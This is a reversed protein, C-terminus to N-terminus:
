SFSGAALRWGGALAAAMSRVAHEPDAASCLEAISAACRAGAQAVADAASETIGGIAVVPIKSRQVARRLGDIGHPPPLPSGPKSQTAFIPGFGIYDAGQAADIEDDSHTSVGIIMKPGVIKRAEYPPLDEQGLHVGDAEALRAIDPRDNIFLLAKGPACIKRAERALVVFDGSGAPQQGSAAPRQGSGAPQQGSAAPQQSAAPPKVRLQVVAAGGRVFAAVLDLIPRGAAGDAIAYVGQPLAPAM